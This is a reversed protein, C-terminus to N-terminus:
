VVSKRDKGTADEVQFTVISVSSGNGVLTAPQASVFDIAVATGVTFTGTGTGSTLGTVSATYTVTEAKSSKVEFTAQGKVAASQFGATGADDDTQIAASGTTSLTVSITSNTVRNGAADLVTVKVTQIATNNALVSTVPEVRLSAPVGIVTSTVTTSGSTLGTGSATIVTAGISANSTFTGVVGPVTPNAVTQNLTGFTAPASLTLAFATWSALENGYSDAGKLTLGAIHGGNGILAVDPALVLSALAGTAYAGDKAPAATLGASTATCSYTGSATYTFEFTAIGNVTTATYTGVATNGKKVTLTVERGNDSTINLGGFDQVETKVTMKEGVTKGTINQTVLKNAAGFAKTTVTATGPVALTTCTATFTDTVDPQTKATVTVSAVGNVTNITTEAFTATAGNDTTKTFKVAYSGTTVTNDNADKVTATLTSTHVGNANLTAPSATLVIKNAAGVTFTGSATAKILNTAAWVASAEYTVTGTTTRTYTFNAIGNAGSGLNITTTTTGHKLTVAVAGPLYTLQNGNADQVRVKIQQNETVKVDTIPDIALKYPAGIITTSM